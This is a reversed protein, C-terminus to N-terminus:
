FYFANISHFTQRVVMSWHARNFFSKETMLIKGKGTNYFGLQANGILIQLFGKM